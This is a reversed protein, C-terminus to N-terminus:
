ANHRNYVLVRDANMYSRAARMSSQSARHTVVGNFAEFVHFAASDIKFIKPIEFEGCAFRQALPGVYTNGKPDLIIEDMSTYIDNTETHTKM